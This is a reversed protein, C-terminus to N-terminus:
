PTCANAHAAAVCHVFRKRQCNSEAGACWRQANGDADARGVRRRRHIARAHRRECDLVIHKTVQVRQVQRRLDSDRCGVTRGRERGSPGRGSPRTGSPGRGSLEPVRRRLSGVTEIWRWSAGRTCVNASGAAVRLEGGATHVTSRIPRVPRRPVAAPEPTKRTSRHPAAL